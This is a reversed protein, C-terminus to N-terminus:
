RKNWPKFALLKEPAFDDWNGTFTLGRDDITLFAPPKEHAFRLQIYTGGPALEEADITYWITDIIGKETLWRRMAEVGQQSKSRSSYVILSFHKQAEIAWEFFGPTVEGYIAGDRWGDLYDHIVGDFDLCIIPKRESM